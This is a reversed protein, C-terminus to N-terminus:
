PPISTALTGSGVQEGKSRSYNQSGTDVRVELEVQRHEAEGGGEAEGM